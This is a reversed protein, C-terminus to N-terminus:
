HSSDPQSSRSNPRAMRDMRLQEIAKEVRKKQEGPFQQYYTHSQWFVSDAVGYERFIRSRISDAAGKDLQGAESYTRVLQLEVLLSIYTEEEILAEPREPSNECAGLLFLMLLICAM